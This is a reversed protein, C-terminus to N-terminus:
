AIVIPRMLDHCFRVVSMAALQSTKPNDDLPEGEIMVTLQGFAGRATVCHQNRGISPDATLEVTTQDMGIGALALTAAVNTNAPFLTAAERATGRYFTVAETLQALDM